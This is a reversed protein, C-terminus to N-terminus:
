NNKNYYTMAFDYFVEGYSGPVTESYASFQFPSSISGISKGTKDYINRSLKQSQRVNKNFAFLQMEHDIIKKYEKYSEKIVESRPILKFWAVVYEDNNTKRLEISDVDAYILVDDDRIVEVFNVAYAPLCLSFLLFLALTIKTM